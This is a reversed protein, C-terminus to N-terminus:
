IGFAKPYKEMSEKVDHLRRYMSCLKESIDRRYRWFFKKFKSNEFDEKNHIDLSEILLGKCTDILIDINQQNIGVVKWSDHETIKHLNCYDFLNRILSGDGLLYPIQVEVERNDVKPFVPKKKWWKDYKYVDNKNVLYGQYDCGM